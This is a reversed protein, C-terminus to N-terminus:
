KNYVEEVKRIAAETVVFTDFKLIDFVNITNPLATKVGKINSASREVNVDREGTVLLATKEVGVARLFEVMRKTKIEDLKLEDVVVLDGSGFKSSLASKLALRRMKKPLTYSYDRPAPGFIIGGGVYQASRISGHRARGTGKQRYPKRGGGRVESRTKAKSTGQRRNALQNLLVRSLVDRNPEIGFVADALEIEGVVEGKMNVVNTKAM